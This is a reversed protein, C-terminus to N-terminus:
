EPAAEGADKRSAVIAPQDNGLLTLRGDDGVAFHSIAELADLFRREQKMLAQDCMMMSAGAKGFSLGEGTLTVAAFYRNCSANGNLTKEDAFNLSAQSGEVVKEGGIEEVIWEGRLLDFPEGGCGALTEGGFRVEATAPFNMGSMTDACVRDVIALRFPKGDVTAEYAKGNEIDQPQPLPSITTAAGGMPEFTIAEDTMRVVWGPENGRAVFDAASAAGMTAALVAAAAAHVGSTRRM